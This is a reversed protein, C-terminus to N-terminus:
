RPSSSARGEYIARVRVSIAEQAERVAESAADPDPDDNARQLTKSTFRVASRARRALRRIGDDLIFGAQADIAALAADMTSDAERIHRDDPGGGGSTRQEHLQHWFDSMVDLLKTLEEEAARLLQHVEVLHRLEFEERRETAAAEREHRRALADRRDQRSETFANQVFVGVAGLILTLVPLVATFWEPM